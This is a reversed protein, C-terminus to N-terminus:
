KNLLIKYYNINDITSEIQYNIGALTIKAQIYDIKSIEHKNYQELTGDYLKQIMKQEELLNIYEKLNNQLNQEFQKKTQIYEDNFQLQEKQKLNIKQFNEKKYTFRNQNFLYSLDLGANIEYNHKSEKDYSCSTELVFYISYTQKDYYYDNIIEKKELELIQNKIISIFEYNFNNFRKKFALYFDKSLIQENSLLEINIGCLNYIINELEKKQLILSNYTQLNNYLSQKSSYFTTLNIQGLDKLLSSADCISNDLNMKEQIYSIQRLVNRYSIIQQLLLDIIQNKTLLFSLSSINSNIKYANTVPNGQSKHIYYPNLSQSYSLSLQYENLNKTGDKLLTNANKFSPELVIKGNGPLKQTIIGYFSYDLNINNDKFIDSYDIGGYFNINPFYNYFSSKYYLDSIEKQNQSQIISNNYTLCNEFLEIIKNSTFDETGFSPSVLFLFTLIIKLINKM